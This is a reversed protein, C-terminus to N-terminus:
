KSKIYKKINKYLYKNYFIFNINSKQACIKETINNCIFLSKKINITCNEKLYKFMETDLKRFTCNVSFKKISNKKYDSSYVIINIFINRILLKNKLNKQLKIFNNVGNYGKGIDSQNIIIFIYFKKKSIFKLTEIIKEKFKFDSIKNKYRYDYNIITDKNFFIAPRYTNKKIIKKALFFNRPTGIDIFVGTHEIGKIKKKIILKKLIDNELSFTKYNILELMKKRFFIIGTSIFKKKSSFFVTKNKDINLNLLNKTLSKKSDKTLIMCGLFFKNMKKKLFYNLNFDVFTDGNILIFDNKIKNKIYNLAYGTGATKKEIICKVKVLNQYKDQYKKKILHGKHGAIIYIKNINYKSLNKILYDLFPKKNIKLLPKPIKNRTIKLIRKGYGGALIVADISKM